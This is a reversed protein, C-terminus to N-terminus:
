EGKSMIVVAVAVAASPWLLTPTCALLCALLTAIGRM